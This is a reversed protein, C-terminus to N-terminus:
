GGSSTVTVTCRFCGQQKVWGEGVDYGDTDKWGFKTGSNQGPTLRGTPSGTRCSTVEWDRCVRITHTSHGSNRIVADSYPSLEPLPVMEWRGDALSKGPGPDPVAPSPRKVPPAGRKAPSVGTAPKPHGATTAPKPHGAATAPRPDRSTVPAERVASPVPPDTGPLVAETLLGMPAYLFILVPALLAGLSAATLAQQRTLRAM